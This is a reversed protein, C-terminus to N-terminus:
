RGAYAQAASGALGGLVGAIGPRALPAQMISQNGQLAGQYYSQPNAIQAQGLLGSAGAQKQALNNALMGTLQQDYDHAQSTNLDTRAQDAYGSPLNGYGALRKELNARAPQYAQGLVGRANDTQANFNPDGNQMLGTYFPNVKNQQAESFQEQKAATTGLQNTLNAQSAAAAKQEPSPGGGCLALPGDYGFETRSVEVMGSDTIQWVVETAIKVVAGECSLSRGSHGELVEVM